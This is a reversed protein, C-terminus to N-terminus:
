SLSTALHYLRGIEDASFPPEQWTTIGDFDLTVPWVLGGLKEVRRICENRRNPKTYVLMFGGGGAGCTKGGFICDKMVQFYRRHEASDCSKHLNYLQRCSEALAIAYGDLDGSELSKAMAQAQERLVVMAKVTPSNPQAYSRKIDEHISGSMHAAGSYILLSGHELAHLTDRNISLKHPTMGGGPHYELFNIGGFAAGLSDQDGGPFALDKREIENALTAIELPTRTRDYARDLAAVIAVGLAGSGGLGSGPPVDTETVLLMSDSNPILRKVFAKVFEFHNENSLSVVDPAVMGAQIDMAYLIIGSGPDLRQASAFAHRQVAFNVVAGGHEICFPPADTGGGAPDVRVPARACGRM